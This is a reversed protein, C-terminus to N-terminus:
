AVGDDRLLRIRDEFRYCINLSKVVYRFLYKIFRGLSTPRISLFGTRMPVLGRFRTLRWGASKVKDGASHPKKNDPSLTTASEAVARPLFAPCHSLRQLVTVPHRLFRGLTALSGPALSRPFHVPQLRM